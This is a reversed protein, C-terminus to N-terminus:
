LLFKDFLVSLPWFKGFYEVFLVVQKISKFTGDCWILNAQFHYPQISAKILILVAFPNFFTTEM